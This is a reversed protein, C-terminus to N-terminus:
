SLAYIFTKVAMFINRLTYVVTLLNFGCVLTNKLMDKCAFINEAFYNTFIIAAPDCCVPYIPINRSGTFM